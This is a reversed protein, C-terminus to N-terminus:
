EFVLGRADRLAWSASFRFVPNYGGTLAEAQGV